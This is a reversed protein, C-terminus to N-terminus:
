TRVAGVVIYAFSLWAFGIILPRIASAFDCVPQYSWTIGYISTTVDAPCSGAGGVSTTDVSVPVELTNLPEAASPTGLQTCGVTSPNAACHDPTPEATDVPQPDPVPNGQADTLPQEYTDVTVADGNPSVKAMPQATSGDPKTYPEGVPVSMPAFDYNPADVPAGDPMYPAYPLEPALDPSPDPLADWDDDTAPYPVLQYPGYNVAVAERGDPSYSTLYNGVCAANGAPIGSLPESLVTVHLTGAQFPYGYNACGTVWSEPFQQNNPSALQWGQGDVYSLGQDILWGAALTGAIAWPNLKLGSKIFQGANSAMRLSAPVTVAKGGVNVVGSAGYSGVNAAPAFTFSGAPARYGGSAASYGSVSPVLVVSARAYPSILLMAALCLGVGFAMINVFDRNM